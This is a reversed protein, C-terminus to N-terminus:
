LRLSMKYVMIVDLLKDKEEKKFKVQAQGSTRYKISCYGADSLNRLIEKRTTFGVDWIFIGESQQIAYTLEDLYIERIRIEFSVKEEVRTTTV